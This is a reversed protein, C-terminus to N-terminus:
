FYTLFSWGVIFNSYGCLACLFLLLMKVVFFVFRVFFFALFLPSPGQSSRFALIGREFLAMQ